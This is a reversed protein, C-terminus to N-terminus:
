HVPHPLFPLDHQKNITLAKFLNACPKGLPTLLMFPVMLRPNTVLLRNMRSPIRLIQLLCVPAFCLPPYKPELLFHLTPLLPHTNSLALVIIQAFVSAHLLDDTVHKSPLLTIPVIPLTGNALLLLLLTSLNWHPALHVYVLLLSDIHDFQFFLVHAKVIWKIEALM